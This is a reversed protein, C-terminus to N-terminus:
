KKERSAAYKFCKEQFYTQVEKELQEKIGKMEKDTKEKVDKIRSIEFRVVSSVILKTINQYVKFVKKKRQGSYSYQSLLKDTILKSTVLRTMEKLDKARVM